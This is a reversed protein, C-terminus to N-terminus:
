PVRKPNRDVWFGLKNTMITAIKEVYRDHATPQFDEYEEATRSVPETWHFFFKNQLINTTQKSGAKIKRMRNRKKKEGTRILTKLKAGEKTMREEHM